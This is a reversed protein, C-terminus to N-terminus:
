KKILTYCLNPNEGKKRGKRTERPCRKKRIDTVTISLGGIFAIIYLQRELEYKEDDLNDANTTITMVVHIEENKFQIKLKDLVVDQEDKDNITVYIDRAYKTLETKIYRKSNTINEKTFILPDDEDQRYVISVDYKM